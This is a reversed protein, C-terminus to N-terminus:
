LSRELLRPPNARADYLWWSDVLSKYLGNFNRLGMKFRRRVTAEPIDHGGQAVRWAVRAIAHDVTPLM